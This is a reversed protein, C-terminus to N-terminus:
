LGRQKGVLTKINHSGTAYARDFESQEEEKLEPHSPHEWLFSQLATALLYHGVAYNHRLQLAARAEDVAEASGYDVSGRAIGSASLVLHATYPVMDTKGAEDTIDLSDIGQKNSGLADIAMRCMRLARDYDGIQYLVVAYKSMTTSSVALGGGKLYIVSQYAQAAKEFEGTARYVDGIGELATNPPAVYEKSLTLAKQYTSMASEWDAKRVAVRAIACYAEVSRIQYTHRIMHPIYGFQALNAPDELTGGPEIPTVRVAYLDQNSGQVQSNQASVRSVVLLPSFLIAGLLAITTKRYLNMETM